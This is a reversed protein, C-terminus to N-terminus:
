ADEEAETFSLSVTNIDGWTQGYSVSVLSFTGESYPMYYSDESLNEQADKIRNYLDEDFMEENKYVVLNTKFYLKFRQNMHYKAFLISKTFRTLCDDGVNWMYCSFSLTSSSQRNINMTRGNRGAYSQPDGQASWSGNMTIFPIKFWKNEVADYSWVETVYAVGTEPVKVTGSCSLLSRYGEYMEQTSSAVDPTYFSMTLGDTYEFNYKNCFVRLVASAVAFDNQESLCQIRVPVNLVAQNIQGQGFKLVIFITKQYPMDIPDEINGEYDFNERLLDAPKPKEYDDVFVRETCVVIHYEDINVDPCESQSVEQAANAIANSIIETIESITKM